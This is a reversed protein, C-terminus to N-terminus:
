IAGMMLILEDEEDQEIRKLEERIAALRSSLSVISISKEPVKAILPLIVKAQPQVIEVAKPLATVEAVVKTWIRKIADQAGELDRSKKRKGKVYYVAPRGVPTPTGVTPSTGGFMGLNGLLTLLM